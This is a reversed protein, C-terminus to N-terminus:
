KYRVHQSISSLFQPLYDSVALNYEQYKLRAGPRSVCGAPYQRWSLGGGHKKCMVHWGEKGYLEEAAKKHADTYKGM